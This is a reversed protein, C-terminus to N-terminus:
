TKNWQKAAKVCITSRPCSMDDGYDRYSARVLSLLATSRLFVYSRSPLCLNLRVAHPPPHPSDITSYSLLGYRISMSMRALTNPAFSAVYHILALIWAAAARITAMSNSSSWLSRLLSLKSLPVIKDSYREKGWIQWAGVLWQYIQECAKYNLRSRSLFYKSTSTKYQM